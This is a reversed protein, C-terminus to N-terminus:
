RVGLVSHLLFSTAPDPAAGPEAEPTQGSSRAQRAVVEAFRKLMRELEAGARFREEGRLHGADLIATALDRATEGLERDRSM